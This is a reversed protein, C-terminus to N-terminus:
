SLQRLPPTVFTTPRVTVKADTVTCGTTSVILPNLDLEAIQPHDAVLHSVRVVADVLLDPSLGTAALAAAVPSAAVLAAAGTASLPALRSAEGDGARAFPLSGLDVIVVPGVDDAVCRIRVDVGPPVMRQVTVEDADPGLSGRMVALADLVSAPTGLDLAIGAVASRGGVRRKAAKLAVPYGLDTATTVVEHEDGRVATAPAVAIGYASLLAWSQALDLREDGAELAASLLAHVGAADVVAEEADAVITAESARWAAYAHLRGLTAAASEPFAFTPVTSGPRIPGDDHGLLVALM